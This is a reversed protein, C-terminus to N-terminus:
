HKQCDVPLQYPEDPNVSKSLQLPRPSDVNKVVHRVGKAKTKLSLGYTERSISDKVVDRLDLSQKTGPFISHGLSSPEPHAIKNCDVSSFTSSCSSSVSTRSSEVSVRQKEKVVEEKPLNEITEQTMSSSEMGHNGSQGPPLRKQNQSSIRRKTLFHRGDFFQFIGNMCGIQKQLDRNEDRFSNLLKGSM